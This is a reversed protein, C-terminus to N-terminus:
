NTKRRWVSMQAVSHQFKRATERIVFPVDRPEEVFEFDAALLEKL